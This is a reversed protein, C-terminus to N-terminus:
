ITRVEIGHALISKHISRAIEVASEGDGHICITEARLPINAGTLAVVSQSEIMQLVQAISSEADELM